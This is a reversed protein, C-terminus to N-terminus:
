RYISVLRSNQNLWEQAERYDPMITEVRKWFERSHNKYQIHSLEHIAIYDIVFLPCMVARWNINITQKAGCSGWRAKADSLNISYYTAGMLDAYYQVRKFVVDTAQAHYWEILIHKAENKEKLPLILRNGDIVVSEVDAYDLMYLNGLYMHSEGVEFVSDPYKEFFTKVIHQKEDIWRQKRSITEYIVADSAEFPAKVILEAQNNVVLSVHYCNDWDLRGNDFDTGTVLYPGEDIFEDSRLGQWGIRARLKFLHEIKDVDWEVPIMGLPSLKYKHTKPSRINGNEDIGNTLLDQLLGEKIAKYKEIIATTKDIAIDITTLIEAIKEQEQKNTSFQIQVKSLEKKQINPLGSGVRLRMIDPEKFKLYEYLYLLCIEKSLNKLAYNHGGSWFRTSNYAVYGCSNGGESISITDAETNWKNLYGSPNQGGNLVYYDGEKELHIKAMQQGKSLLALQSLQKKVWESM